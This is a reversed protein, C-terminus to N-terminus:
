AVEVLIIKHSYTKHHGFSGDARGRSTIEVYQHSEVHFTEVGERKKLEEVLQSTTYESLESM